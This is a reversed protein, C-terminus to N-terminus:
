PTALMTHSSNGTGKEPNQSWYSTPATAQARKLSLNWYSIPATEQARKLSPEPQLGPLGSGVRCQGAEKEPLQPNLMTHSSNGTGKEPISELM